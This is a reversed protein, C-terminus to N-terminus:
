AHHNQGTRIGSDRLLLRDVAELTAVTHIARLYNRRGQVHAPVMSRLYARDFSAMIQWSLPRMRATARAAFATTTTLM